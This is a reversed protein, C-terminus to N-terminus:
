NYYILNIELINVNKNINRNENILNENIKM